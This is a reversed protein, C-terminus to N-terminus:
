VNMPVDRLIVLKTNGCIRMLLLHRIAYRVNTLSKKKITDIFIKIRAFIQLYHFHGNAYKAPM